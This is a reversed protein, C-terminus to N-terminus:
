TATGSREPADVSMPCALQACAVWPHASGGCGISPHPRRYRCCCTAPHRDTARHGAPSRAACTPRSGKDAEPMSPRPRCFSVCPRRVIELLTGRDDLLRCVSRSSRGLAIGREARHRRRGARAPASAGPQRHSRFIGRDSIFRDAATPGIEVHEAAMLVRRGRPEIAHPHHQQQVM